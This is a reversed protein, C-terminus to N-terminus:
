KVLGDAPIARAWPAWEGLLQFQWEHCNDGLVNVEKKTAEKINSAM